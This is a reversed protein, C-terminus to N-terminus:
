PLVRVIKHDTDLEAMVGLPLTAQIATHGTPFGLLVPFPANAFYNELVEDLSLSKEPDHSICNTFNGLIVGALNELMGGQKLQCLMRDVRYPEENIEELILIKGKTDIQYATGMLACLMTLNGGILEGAGKGPSLVRSENLTPLNFNFLHNWNFDTENSLVFTWIATPGLLTPISAKKQIAAHLATADSMGVFIKPHAAIYNYDLLDIMRTTGFGGRLCWVMKVLPDRWCKMFADAREKDSGALYGKRSFVNDGLKVRFGKKKLADACREIDKQNAASGTLVLAITDGPKLDFTAEAQILIFSFLLSFILQM